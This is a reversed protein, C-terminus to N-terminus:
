LVLFFFPPGKQLANTLSKCFYSEEIKQVVTNDFINISNVFAGTWLILIVKKLNRSIPSRQLPRTIAYLRDVAITVLLWISFGTLVYLIRLFLKCTINRINGGFWLGQYLTERIINLFCMITIFLDACAQNLVLHNIATKKASNTRIIHIYLSLTELCHYWFYLAM